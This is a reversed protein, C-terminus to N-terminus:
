FSGWSLRARTKEHNGETGGPLHLSLAKFQAVNADKWMREWENNM